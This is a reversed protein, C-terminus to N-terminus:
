RNRRLFVVAGAGIVAAAAIFGAVAVTGVPPLASATGSMGVTPDYALKTYNTNWGAPTNFVFWIHAMSDDEIGHSFMKVSVNVLTATGNSYTANAESGWSVFGLKLFNGQMVSIRNDQGSQAPQNENQYSGGNNGDSVSTGTSTPVEGQNGRITQHGAVAVVLALKDGTSNAWTWHNVLLDFKVNATSENIHFVIEISGTGIARVPQMLGSDAPLAQQGSLSDGPMRNVPMQGLSFEASTLMFTINVMQSANDYALAVGSSYNFIGPSANMEALDPFARVTSLVAVPTGSSNLEYVGRVTVTFGTINSNNRYFIHLMPKFGQFQVTVKSNSIIISNDHSTVTPMGSAQNGNVSGNDGMALSAMSVFVLAVMSAALVKHGIRMLIVSVM